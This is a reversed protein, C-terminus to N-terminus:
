SYAMNREHGLARLLAQGVRDALDQENETINGTVYVNITNGMGGGHSLPVVAEPGREGIMALTPRRVIGGAALGQVESWFPHGSLVSMAYDYDPM